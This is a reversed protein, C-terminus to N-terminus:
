QFAPWAAQMVILLVVGAFLVSEVLRVKSTYSSVGALVRSQTIAEEVYPPLWEVWDTETWAIDQTLAGSEAFSEMPQMEVSSAVDM